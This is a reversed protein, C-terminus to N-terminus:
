LRHEAQLPQVRHLRVQSASSKGQCPYLATCLLERVQSQRNRALSAPWKRTLKARASHTWPEVHSCCRSHLRGWRLLGAWVARPPAHHNNTRNLCWHGELGLLWEKAGSAIALAASCFTWTHYVQHYASHVYAPPSCAAQTPQKKSGCTMGVAPDTMTFLLVTCAKTVCCRRAHACAPVPEAVPRSCDQHCSLLRHTTTRSERGTM